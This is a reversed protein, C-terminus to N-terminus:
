IFGQRIGRFVSVYNGGPEKEWPGDDNNQRLHSGM